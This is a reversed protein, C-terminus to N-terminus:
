RIAKDAVDYLRSPTIVDTWKGLARGQIVGYRCRVYTYPKLVDICACMHAQYWAIPLTGFKPAAGIRSLWRFARGLDQDNKYVNCLEIM